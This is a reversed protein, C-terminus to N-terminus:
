AICNNLTSSGTMTGPCISELSANIERSLDDIMQLTNASDSIDLESKTLFLATHDQSTIGTEQREAKKAPASRIQATTRRLTSNIERQREDSFKAYSTEDIFASDNGNTNTNCVFTIDESKMQDEISKCITKARVMGLAKFYAKKFSELLVLQEPTLENLKISKQLFNLKANNILEKSLM